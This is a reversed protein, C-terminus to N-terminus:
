ALIKRSGSLLHTLEIPGSVLYADVYAANQRAAVQKKKFM